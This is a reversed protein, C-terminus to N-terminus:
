LSGRKLGFEVADLRPALGLVMLCVRGSQDCWLASPSTPSAGATGVEMSCSAELILRSSIARDTLRSLSQVLSKGCAEEGVRERRVIETEESADVGLGVFSARGHDMDVRVSGVSV